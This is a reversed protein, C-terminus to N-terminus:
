KSIERDCEIIMHILIRVARFFDELVICEDKEHDGGHGAPMDPKKAPADALPAKIGVSFANKLHRAYTGGSLRYAKKNSQTIENYVNEM